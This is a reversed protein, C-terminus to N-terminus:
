IEWSAIKVPYCDALSLGKLLYCDIHNERLLLYWDTFHEIQYYNLMMEKVQHKMSPYVSASRLCPLVFSRYLAGTGPEGSGSEALTVSVPDNSDTCINKIINLYTKYIQEM